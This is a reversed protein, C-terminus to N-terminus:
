GNGVRCRGIACDPAACFDIPAARAVAAFFAQCSTTHSTSHCDRNPTRRGWNFMAASRARAQRSPRRAGGPLAARPTAPPPARDQRAAAPAAQQAPERGRPRPGARLRTRRVNAGALAGAGTQAPAFPPPTSCSFAGCAVFHFNSQQRQLIEGAYLPYYLPPIVLPVPARTPTVWERRRRGRSYLPGM